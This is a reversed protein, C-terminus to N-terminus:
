PRVIRLTRRLDSRDATKKKLDEIRNSTAFNNASQSFGQPFQPPNAAPDITDAEDEPEPIGYKKRLWKQSATLGISNIVINDKEAEAKLDIPDEILFKFQPLYQLDGEGYNFLLLPRLLDRRLTSCLSRVDAKNLDDRVEQNATEEAYTGTGRDGSNVTGLIAKSMEMNCFKAMFSHVEGGGSRTAQIIEIETDKSIIGAGDSGLGAIAQRLINMEDDSPDGTYKGLRFPIGYLDLFTAWDKIAYNKFIYMWACIRVLGGRVPSGSKARHIHNIFKWEPLVEGMMNSKTIIRWDGTTFERTFNWAPIYQLDTIAVQGASVEWLIETWSIGKGIADLIDLLDDEFDPIARIFGELAAAIEVAKKDTEDSPAIAWPWKTVAMKRKQLESYLHTDKEEMEEFLRFQALPDGQDAQKLYGSLKVPTLGGSYTNLFRDDLYLRGGISQKSEPPIIKKALDIIKSKIINM